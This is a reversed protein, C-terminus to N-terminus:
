TTESLCHFWATAQRWQIESSLTSTLLPPYYVSFKIWWASVYHFVNLNWIFDLLGAACRSILATDCMDSHIKNFIRWVCQIATRECKSGNRTCFTPTCFKYGTTEDFVLICIEIDFKSNYSNMSTAQKGVPFQQQIKQLWKSDKRDESKNM